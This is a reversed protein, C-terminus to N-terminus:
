YWLGKHRIFLSKRIGLNSVQLDLWQLFYGNPKGRKHNRLWSATMWVAIFSVVVTFFGIILFAFHGVLLAIIVGIAFDILVFYKLLMILESISAGGIMSPEEDTFSVLM